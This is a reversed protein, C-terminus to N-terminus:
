YLVAYHNNCPSGTIHSESRDRKHTDRTYFLLLPHIAGCHHTQIATRSFPFGKGTREQTSTVKLIRFSAELTDILICSIFLWLVWALIKSLRLCNQGTLRNEQTWLGAKRQCAVAPLLDLSSQPDDCADTRLFKRFNLCVSKCSKRHVRFCLATHKCYTKWSQMKRLRGSGNTGWYRWRCLEPTEGAWLHLKIWTIFIVTITM